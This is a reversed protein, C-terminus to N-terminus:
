MRITLNHREVGTTSIHRSDPDGFVAYKVRGIVQGYDVAPGFVERIAEAYSWIGDISIQIRETDIRSALDGIFLRAADTDRDLSVAWSVLLKTDPDM